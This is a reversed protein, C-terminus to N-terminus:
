SPSVEELGTPIRQFALGQVTVWVLTLCSPETTFTEVKDTRDRVQSFMSEIANTTRIYRHLVAPFDYFTFTKEVEDELSAIANPYEKVYRARFAALYERAQAKDPQSWIAELETRIQPHVRIPFAPMLDREKHVLCRQRPTATFLKDCASTLGKHGDSVIVDVKEVGRDRVENLISQWGAGTEEAYAKLALLEKHGALNVALVALVVLPDTAEKHRVQFRVADLYFVRYHAALKAKQWEGFQEQLNATLRSVASASVAQGTLTEVVEGVKGVSAGAVYMETMAQQLAPEHRQYQEFVQTQYHGERDRPVQLKELPGTNTLLDRQYYGNRYGQRAASHEGWKAGVLATLEEQMTQELLLRLGQRAQERIREVFESHSPRVASPAPATDVQGATNSQDNSPM